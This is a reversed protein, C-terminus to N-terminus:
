NSGGLLVPETIDTMYMFNDIVFAKVVGGGVTIESVTLENAPSDFDHPELSINQAFVKDIVGGVGYVACVSKCKSRADTGNYFGAKVAGDEMYPASVSLSGYKLGYGLKVNDYVCSQKAGGKTFFAARAYAAGPPATYSATKRGSSPSPTFIEDESLATVGSESVAAFTEGNWVRGNENFFKLSYLVDGTTIYDFSL